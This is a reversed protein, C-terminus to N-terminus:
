RLNHARVAKIKRTATAPHQTRHYTPHRPDTPFGDVDTGKTYGKSEEHHKDRSHCHSCLSQLPSLWFKNWDGHHPEIHDAITAPNVVGQKLCYACLPQSLLQHKAINRWRQKWYWGRWGYDTATSRAM